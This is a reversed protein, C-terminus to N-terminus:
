CADTGPLYTVTTTVSVICATFSPKRLSTSTTFFVTGDAGTIGSPSGSFDGGFSVTVAAGAVPDGLDDVVTVTAVGSQKGQGAGPLSLEVTATASSPGSAVVGDGNLELFDVSVSDHSQQGRTRDTDTVRVYVTGSRRGIDYGAAISGGAPITVVPQWSSGDSSVAVLVGADADGGDTVSAHVTLTQVGTTASLQWVHELLDFRSSPKGSSNVETVVQAGGGVTQTATYSGSVSGAVATQGSAYTTLVVPVSVVVPSSPASRNGSTDIAVVRYAIDGGPPAVDTHASGTVTALEAYGSGPDREVVYGALDSEVNDDWDLVVDGGTEVGGVGTPAAPAIADPAAINEITGSVTYQGLSGYDTYGSPPNSGPTGVGVGDVEVTYTGAGVTTTISANQADVPNSAAVVTGLSNRMTLSIDLNPGIAAPSAGLVVLGGSTSFSFADVDTRSEIVGGVSPSAGVLATPSTVDGHDDTRIPINGLSTNSIIAVDDDGQGYNAGAGTNNADYYEQRSWQSIEEYYGVGMIPAWGPGTGDHGSYYASGSLTGDHALYLTHGVEHTIAESVGVFSSNYVFAPEDQPDDFAGIYAHGGCGCSAWTDDTVVVRVGWESDGGGSYRLAETGPDITTVNVQWPAFDEAVVAWSDAIIQLEQASWSEPDGDRDYPPSVITTLGSQTNWTTGTTTHGDFDLYITLSAGPLSALQFEPGTVPPAAAPGAPAAPEAGAPEPEALSDPALEDFYALNGDRDVALTTDDLLMEALADPRLGHAVAVSPLTGGLRDVADQGRAFAPDDPRGPAALAVAGVTTAVTCVLAAPLVATLWRRRNDDM